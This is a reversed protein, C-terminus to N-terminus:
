TTISSSKNWRKSSIHVGLYLTTLLLLIISIQPEPSGQLLHLMHLQTLVPLQSPLLMSLWETPVTALAAWDCMSAPLPLEAAESNAAQIRFRCLSYSGSDFFDRSVTYLSTNEM